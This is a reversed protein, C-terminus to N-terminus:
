RSAPSNGAVLAAAAIESRRAPLGGSYLRMAMSHIVNPSKMEVFDPVTPPMIDPVNDMLGRAHRIASGAVAKAKEYDMALIVEPKLAVVAYCHAEAATEWARFGPRAESGLDAALDLCALADYALSHARDAFTGIVGELSVNLLRQGSAVGWEEVIRIAQYCQDKPM